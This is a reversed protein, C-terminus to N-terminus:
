FFMKIPKESKKIVQINCITGTNVEANAGKSNSWQFGNKSSSDVNLRIRVEVENGKLGLASAYKDSGMAKILSDSTVTSTGIKTISGQIYGVEERKLNSPTVQTDMGVKLEAAQSYPVYALIEKSNSSEENIISIAAQGGPEVDSKLPAIKNINGSKTARIFSRDLYENIALELYSGVQEKEAGSSSEYKKRLDRIQGLYGVDPVIALVDGKEVTDGEDVLVDTVKGGAISSAIKVSNAPFLVGRIQESTTITGTVAWVFVGIIIALIGVVIIWVSPKTIRVHQDLQEPNSVTDLAQKRFIKTNGM